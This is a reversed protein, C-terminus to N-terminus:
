LTSKLVSSPLVSTNILLLKHPILLHAGLGCEHELYRCVYVGGFVGSLATLM